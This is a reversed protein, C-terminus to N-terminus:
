KYPIFENKRIILLVWFSYVSHNLLSYKAFHDIKMVVKLHKSPGWFDSIIETEKFM